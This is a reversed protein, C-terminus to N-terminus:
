SNNNDDDDDNEGMKVWRESCHQKFLFADLAKVCSSLM